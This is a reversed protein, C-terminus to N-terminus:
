YKAVFVNISYIIYCKEFVRTICLSAEDTINIGSTMPLKPGRFVDTGREWTVSDPTIVEQDAEQGRNYSDM